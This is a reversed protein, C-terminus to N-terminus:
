KQKVSRRSADLNKVGLAFGCLLALLGRLSKSKSFNGLMRLRGPRYQTAQGILPPSNAVSAVEVRRDGPLPGSDPPCHDEM